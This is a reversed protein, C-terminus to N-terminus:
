EVLGEPIRTRLTGGLGEPAAVVFEEILPILVEGREGNVVAIEHAPTEFIEDLTGLEGYAEDVVSCGIWEDVLLAGDLDLDEQAALLKRGVLEEAANMDDVGELAVYGSDDGTQNVSAVRTCRVGELAPPVVHVELGEYLCFPLGSTSQM